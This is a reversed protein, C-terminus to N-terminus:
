ESVVNVKVISNYYESNFDSHHLSFLVYYENTTQTGFTYTLTPSQISETRESDYVSISYNLEKNIKDHEIDMRVPEDEVVTIEDDFDRDELTLQSENETLNGWSNSHTEPYDYFSVHAYDIKNTDNLEESPTITSLSVIIVLLVLIVVAIAIRFNTNKLYDNVM